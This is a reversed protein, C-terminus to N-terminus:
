IRFLSLFLVVATMGDGQVQDLRVSPNVIPRHNKPPHPGNLDSRASTGLTHSKSHSISREALHRLVQLADRSPAGGRRRTHTADAAM